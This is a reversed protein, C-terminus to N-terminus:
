LKGRLKHTPHPAVSGECSGAEAEVEPEERGTVRGTDNECYSWRAFKLDM